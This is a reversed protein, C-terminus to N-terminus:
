PLFNSVANKNTKHKHKKTKRQNPKQKKQNAKIAKKNNKTKTKNTRKQNQKCTQKKTKNTQTFKTPAWTGVVLQPNWAPDSKYKINPSIEKKM